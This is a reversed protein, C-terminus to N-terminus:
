KTNFACASNYEPRGVSSFTYGGLVLQPPWVTYSSPSSGLGLSWQQLNLRAYPTCTVNSPPPPPLQPQNVLCVSVVGLGWRGRWQLCM